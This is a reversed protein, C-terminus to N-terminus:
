KEKEFVFVNWSLPKVHLKFEGDKFTYKKGEKPCILTDNGFSNKLDLDDTQM